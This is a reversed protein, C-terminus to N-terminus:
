KKQSKLFALLVANLLQFVSNAKVKEHPILALIESVAALIVWFIPSEIFGM